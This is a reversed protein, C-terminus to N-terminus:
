QADECWLTLFMRVIRYPPRFQISQLGVPLWLHLSDIYGSLPGKNIKLGERLDESLGLLWYVCWQYLTINCSPMETGWLQFNVKFIICPFLFFVKGALKTNKKLYKRIMKHMQKVSHIFHISTNRHFDHNHWSYFPPRNQKSFLLSASFLKKVSQKVSLNVTRRSWAIKLPLARVTM